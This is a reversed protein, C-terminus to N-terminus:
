IEININHLVGCIYIVIKISKVAITYLFKVVKSSTSKASSDGGQMLM